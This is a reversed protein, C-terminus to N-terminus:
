QKLHLKKKAKCKKRKENKAKELIQPNREHMIVKKEKKLHNM